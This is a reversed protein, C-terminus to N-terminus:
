NKGGIVFKQPMRGFYVDPADRYRSRLENDPPFARRMAALDEAACGHVNEGREPLTEIWVDYGCARALAIFPSLEETHAAFVGAVVFDVRRLFAIGVVMQWAELAAANREPSYDYRGASFMFMDSEVLLLHPYLERALTSKGSGPLGRIIQVRPRKM